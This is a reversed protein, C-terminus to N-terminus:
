VNGTDGKRGRCEMGGGVFFRRWWPIECRRGDIEIMDAGERVLIRWIMRRVPPSYGSTGSYRARLGRRHAARVQARVREIQQTSFRGGRHPFGISRTFNATATLLRYSSERHQNLSNETDVETQASNGGRVKHSPQSVKLTSGYDEKLLKELSTDFMMSENVNDHDSGVGNGLGLGELGTLVITVPRPIVRTGNRFSLYGKQKLSRLQSVLHPWAEHVSSHLDLFLTFPQVPDEDFLGIPSSADTSAPYLVASNRADLKKLLPSLYLNELTESVERDSALSDVLLRGEQAHLDM